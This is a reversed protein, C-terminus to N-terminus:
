FEMEASIVPAASKDDTGNNLAPAAVYAEPLENVELKCGSWSIFVFGNKLGKNTEAKKINVSLERGTLKDTSPEFEQFILTDAVQYPRKTQIIDATREGDLVDNFYAVAVQQLHKM